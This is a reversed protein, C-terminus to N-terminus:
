GCVFIMIFCLMTFGTFTTFILAFTPDIRTLYRQLPTVATSLHCINGECMYTPGPEQECPPCTAQARYFAMYALVLNLAMSALMCLCSHQVEKVIRTESLKKIM